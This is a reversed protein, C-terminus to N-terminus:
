NINVHAVIGVSVTAPVCLWSLTLAEPIVYATGPMNLHLIHTSECLLVPYTECLSLLPVSNITSQVFYSLRTKWPLMFM